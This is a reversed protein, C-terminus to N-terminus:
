GVDVSNWAASLSAVTSALEGIREVIDLDGVEDGQFHEGTTYVFRPVILCRFDLMLSNAMSMLSMYSGAGGAAAMFGVVQGTWARGTLEVANKLAANVDYNYIPTACIIGTAEKVAAALEGVHPAGYASEGDCLPLDLESLDILRPEIGKERLADAATRALVRSRSGSALSASLILPAPRAADEVPQDSPAAPVVSLDPVDSM